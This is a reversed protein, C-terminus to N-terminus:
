VGILGQLREHVLIFTIVSAREPRIRGSEVSYRSELEELESRGAPTVIMSQLEKERQPLTKKQIM